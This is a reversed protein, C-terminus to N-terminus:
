PGDYGEYKADACAAHQYDIVPEGAFPKGCKICLRNEQRRFREDECAEHQPTTFTVSEGEQFERYCYICSTSGPPWNYYEAIEM